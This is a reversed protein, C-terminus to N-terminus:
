KLEAAVDGPAKLAPNSTFLIVQTKAGLTRLIQCATKQRAPDFGALPDDLLFPLRRKGVLAEVLGTRICFTVLAKTGHSLEKYPVRSDDTTHVIPEGEQGVEIRIYKGATIASINRQAAAEVAPILTEMEIGGVRGGAALEALFGGQAPLPAHFDTMLGHEGGGLDWAVEVPAHDTELREIEQRISYTDINNHALEQAAKELALIEDQKTTYEQQLTEPTLDGLVRRQQEEIDNRLSLFYRYNETRDKLEGATVAGAARMFASISAGEQAFKRDLEAIDKVLADIDQKVARRQANKRTGNYWAVVMLVLALILGVYFYHGYEDTLVFMGALISLVGMVIGAIFLKDTVFNVAPMSEHQMQLVDLEKNLENTDALKQSELREHAELMDVFNEPLAECGKLEALSAELENKKQEIEGLSALKKKLDTTALKASQYRYEADAAEEAKKLTERLEALRAQSAAQKGGSPQVSKAPQVHAAAPLAAPVVPEAGHEPRLIFVRAYDEEAVGTTLGAMFPITSDWDKHLLSFEKSAPNYKSLNVAHKSFDQIIRYYVGDDSCVVLAGRSADPTYRSVLGQMASQESNPFLMRQMTDIATTKGSENGAAVFNFGSQFRLRALERIGRVGQMVLEVLFM